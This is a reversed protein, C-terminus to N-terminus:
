ININRIESKIDLTTKVISSAILYPDANAAPRRDEFYGCKNILVESPIRVSASRNAAGYNFAEYSSTECTGTMRLRNGSGYLRMHSEHKNALHDIYEKITDIGGDARTNATSYNTHLGSGNCKNLHKPKPSFDVILNHKEAIRILIFRSLWLQDSAQATGEVPGIQYEWQGLMVEANMGAITLGAKLCAFYHDEAVKRHTVNNAGIGCYFPGQERLKGKAPWGVVEINDNNWDTTDHKRQKLVYEQEFGFWPVVNGEIQEQSEYRVSNPKGPEIPPSEDDQNKIFCGRRNNDPHPRLNDTNWVYLECLVLYSYENYLPHEIYSCPKLVVESNEAGAQNTSSGDYNWLPFDKLTPEKNLDLTKIKSRMDITVPHDPYNDVPLKQTDDRHIDNSVIWVYEATYKVM